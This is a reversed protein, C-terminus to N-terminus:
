CKNCNNRADHALSLKLRIPRHNSNLWKKERIFNGLDNADQM